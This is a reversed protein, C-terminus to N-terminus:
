SRKELEQREGRRRAKEQMVLFGFASEKYQTHRLVEWHQRIYQQLFNIVQGLSIVEYKRREFQGVTSGFAVLRIRHGCPTITHGIRLLQKVVQPAENPACCGFRTLVARLVFPNTAGQNLEAHGEKVEGIIMDAHEALNGLVSDSAFREAVGSEGGGELCVIREAGPFRFALIDLDTMTRYNHHKMAEVVPYETVTFYGNVHLYAQVLAVANDMLEGKGM